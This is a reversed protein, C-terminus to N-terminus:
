MDILTFTLMFRNAKTRCYITRFSLKFTASLRLGKEDALLNKKYHRSNDEHNLISSDSLYQVNETRTTQEDLFKIM